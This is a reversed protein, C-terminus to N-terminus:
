GNPALEELLTVHPVLKRLCWVSGATTTAPYQRCLVVLASPSASVLWTGRKPTVPPESSREGVRNQTHYNLNISFRLPPFSLNLWTVCMRIRTMRRIRM